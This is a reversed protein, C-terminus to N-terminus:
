ERYFPSHIYLIYLSSIKELMRGNWVRNLHSALNIWTFCSELNPHQSKRSELYGKVVASIAFSVSQMPSKQFEYAVIIIHTFAIGKCITTFPNEGLIAHEAALIKKLPLGVCLWAVNKCIAPFLSHIEDVAEKIVFELSSYIPAVGLLATGRGIWKVSKNFVSNKTYCELEGARRMLDKIELFLSVFKGLAARYEETEDENRQPDINYTKSLDEAVEIGEIHARALDIWRWRNNNLDQLIIPFVESLSPLGLM